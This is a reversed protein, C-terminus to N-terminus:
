SLHEERYYVIWGFLILGMWAAMTLIANSVIFNFMITPRYTSAADIIVIIIAYISVVTMYSTYIGGFREFLELTM